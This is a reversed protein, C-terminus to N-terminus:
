ENTPEKTLEQDEDYKAKYMKNEELLIQSVQQMESINIGYQWIIEILQSKSHVKLARKMKKFAAAMEAEAKLQEESKTKKTEESEAKAVNDAMMAEIEKTEEESLQIVPTEPSM